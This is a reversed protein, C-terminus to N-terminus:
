ATGVMATDASPGYMSPVKSGAARLYARLQGRHHVSHRLALSVFEVAPMEFAGFMNVPRLLEEGLARSAM